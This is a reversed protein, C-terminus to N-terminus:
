DEETISDAVKKLHIPAQVTVIDYDFVRDRQPLFGYIEPEMEYTAYIVFFFDVLEKVFQMVKEYEAFPIEISTLKKNQNFILESTM